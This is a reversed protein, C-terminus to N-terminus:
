IRRYSIDKFPIVHFMEWFRDIIRRDYKKELEQWTLNTTVVTFLMRNYRYELLDIVPTNVSGYDMIERPEKGLDDIGLLFTQKIADFNEQKRAKALLSKVDYAQMSIRPIRKTDPDRLFEFAKYADNAFDISRRIAHMMTTKGNGCNGCLMIGFKHGPNALVKTVAILNGKSNGDLIM